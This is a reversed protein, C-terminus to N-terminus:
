GPSNNSNDKRLEYIKDLFIDLKEPAFDNFRPGSSKVYEVFKYLEPDTNPDVEFDNFQHKSYEISLQDKSRVTRNQIRSWM